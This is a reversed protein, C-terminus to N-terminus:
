EEAPMPAPPPIDPIPQPTIPPRSNEITQGRLLELQEATMMLVLQKGNHPWNKDVDVPNFVWWGGINEVHTAEIHHAWDQWVVHAIIKENEEEM